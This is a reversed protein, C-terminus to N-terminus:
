LDRGVLAEIQAKAVRYNFRAQILTSRAQILNAESTLVDLLTSAGLEYRQRQVRLDEEAAIVSASQISIQQEATRLSGWYQVFNQQALLKAERLSADANKLAVDARVVSEERSFQNFIPYSISLRFTKSYAYQGAFAMFDPDSRSGSISYGMSITPLYPGKASRASARAAVEASQAQRVGPGEEILSALATSDLEALVESVTDEPSATVMFPTGVLRTLTANATQMNNRATLLALQANGVQIVSRLSDSKTATRALLKASATRLQQNASELQSQAAVEAERAALVAFYQQKVQLAVQFRQSVESSSAAEAQARVARLNYFRQGGDLLDLNLSLGHNYQWPQGSYPVLEGKSDFRQGGSRSAGGNVSLSPLFAAYSSRVQASTTRMQGRAQVAAPANQQALQVAEALRIPRAAESGPMQAAVAVPLALAVVVLRM